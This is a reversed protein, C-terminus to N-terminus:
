SSFLDEQSSSQWQVAAIALFTLARKHLDIAKVRSDCVLAENLLEIVKLTTYDPKNQDVVFKVTM